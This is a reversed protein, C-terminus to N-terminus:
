YESCYALVKEEEGSVILIPICNRVLQNPTYPLGEARKSKHPEKLPGLNFLLVSKSTLM